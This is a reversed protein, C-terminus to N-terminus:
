IDSQLTTIETHRKYFVFSLSNDVANDKVHRKHKIHNDWVVLSEGSRFITKHFLTREFLRYDNLTQDILTIPKEATSLLTHEFYRVCITSGRSDRTVVHTKQSLM